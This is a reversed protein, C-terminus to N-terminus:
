PIAQLSELRRVWGDFLPCEQRITSIGIELSALSGHFPKEYRSFVAEIRKSPASMPSDNIDEPTPFAARIQRFSEALAVQGIENALADVDSFLLGEFEHMQVY